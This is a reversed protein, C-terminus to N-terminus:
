HTLETSIFIQTLPTSPPAPTPKGPKKLGPMGEVGRVCIMEVSCVPLSNWM